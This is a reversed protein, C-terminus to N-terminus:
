TWGDRATGLGRAVAPVDLIQTWAVLHWWGRNRGTWFQLSM